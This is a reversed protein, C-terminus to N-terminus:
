PHSIPPDAPPDLKWDANDRDQIWRRLLRHLLQIPIGVTGANPGDADASSGDPAIDLVGIQELFSLEHRLEDDSMLRRRRVLEDALADLPLRVGVPAREALCVAVCRRAPTTLLPDTFHDLLAARGFLLRATWDLDQATIVRRNYRRARDLLDGGILHIFYPIGGTLDLVRTAIDPQDPDTEEFAYGHEKIPNVILQRAYSPDLPGVHVRPAALLRSFLGERRPDALHADQVVLLWRIHDAHDQILGWLRDLVAPPRGDDAPPGMQGDFEDLIILLRKNGLAAEAALLLRDLWVIPADGAPRDPRGLGLRACIRQGLLDVVPELEGLRVTSFDVSLPIVMESTQSTSANREALKNALRAAVSSKGIRQQGHLLLVPSRGDGDVAWRFLQEIVPGRDFFRWDTVPSLTFPNNLERSRDEPQVASRRKDTYLVDYSVEVGARTLLRALDACLQPLKVAVTLKIYARKKESVSAVVRFLYAYPTDYVLGLLRDLLGDEDPTNIQFLYLPWHDYSNNEDWSLSIEVANSSITKCGACHIVIADGDYASGLFARIADFPTPRCASCLAIDAVRRQLPRGDPARLAPIIGEALLRHALEDVLRPHTEMRAYLARRDALRLRLAVRDLFHDIDASTPLPLEYLRGGRERRRRDADRRYLDIVHILETEFLGRGPHISGARRRLEARINTRAREWKVQGQWAFDLKAVTPDYAVRVLDGNSLPTKLDAARENVDIRTAQHGLQTHVRYAFDLPLSGRDLLVIEGLPTFCYIPDPSDNLNHRRLYAVIDGGGRQELSHSVRELSRWLGSKPGDARTPASMVGWENLDHMEDTLIHCRVLRGEAGRPWQCITQLARYGNPQPRAIHDTFDRFRTDDGPRIPPAVRHFVGLARYCDAESACFLRLQLQPLQRLWENLTMREARAYNITVGPMLPLLELRPCSGPTFEARLAADLDHRLRNFVRMRSDFDFRDAKPLKGSGYDGTWELRAVTLRDELVDAGVDALSPIGLSHTAALYEEPAARRITEELWTRHLRWMGLMQVAPVYARRTQEVLAPGNGQGFFLRAHHAALLRLVHSLDPWDCYVARFLRRRLLLYDSPDGRLYTEAWAAAAAAKDGAAPALDDPPAAHPLGLLLAADLEDPPLRWNLAMRERM